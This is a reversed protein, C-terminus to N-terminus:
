QYEEPPPKICNGEALEELELLIEPINTHTLCKEQIINHLPDSMLPSYGDVLFYGKIIIKTRKIAYNIRTELPIGQMPIVYSLTYALVCWASPKLELYIGRERKEEETCTQEQILRELDKKKSVKNEKLFDLVEQAIKELDEKTIYGAQFM